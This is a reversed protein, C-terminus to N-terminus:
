FQLCIRISSFILLGSSADCALAKLGAVASQFGANYDLTVEAMNYDTRDDKYYDNAASPGGVLAGNLQHPNDKSTDSFTDWTCEAPQSACAAAKHHPQLPFNDGFGIVFSKGSDGLM